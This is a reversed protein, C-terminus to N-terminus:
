ILNQDGKVVGAVLRIELNRFLKEMDQLHHQGTTRQSGISGPPAVHLAKDRGVFAQPVKAVGIDFIKSRTATARMMPVADRSNPTWQCRRRM